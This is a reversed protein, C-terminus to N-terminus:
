LILILANKKYNVVAVSVFILASAYICNLLFLIDLITYLVFVVCVCVSTGWILAMELSGTILSNEMLDDLEVFYRCYLWCCIVVGIPNLM